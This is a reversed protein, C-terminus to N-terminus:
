VSMCKGEKNAMKTNKRERETKENEVKGCIHTANYTNENHSTFVFFGFNLEIVILLLISLSHSINKEGFVSLKPSLLRKKSRKVGKKTELLYPLFNFLLKICATSQENSQKTYLRDNM